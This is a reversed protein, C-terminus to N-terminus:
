KREMSGAHMIKALTKLTPNKQKLSYYLTSRAMHARKALSAKNSLELYSNIVEIVGEPDNNELCAVITKGLFAPDLFEELPNFPILEHVNNKPKKTNKSSKRQGRSIEKKVM